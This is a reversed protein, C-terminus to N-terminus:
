VTKLNVCLRYGHNRESKIVDTEIGAQQFKKRLRSLRMQLNEASMNGHEPTFLNMIQWKELLRDNAISLASLIRTEALTLQIPHLAGSLVQEKTNLVFTSKLVDDRRIRSRLVAILEEPDVPKPLFVDAGANYGTIRQELQGFATTIIINARPAAARIRKVVSIGDEGPLKLDVIFADASHTGLTDDLDEACELPIVSFGENELLSTLALRLNDHDEILVIAM